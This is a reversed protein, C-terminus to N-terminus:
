KSEAQFPREEIGDNINFDFTVDLSISCCSPQACDLDDHNDHRIDESRKAIIVETPTPLSADDDAAIVEFALRRDHKKSPAIRKPHALPRRMNPLKHLAATEAVGLSWSPPAPTIGALLTEDKHAQIPLSKRQAIEDEISRLRDTVCISRTESHARLMTRLKSNESKTQQLTTQLTHIQEYLQSVNNRWPEPVSQGASESIESTDAKGASDSHDPSVVVTARDASPAVCM